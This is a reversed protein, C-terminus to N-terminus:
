LLKELYCCLNGDIHIQKDALLIIIDVIFVSMIWYPWYSYSYLLIFYM